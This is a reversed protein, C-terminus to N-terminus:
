TESGFVLFMRTSRLMDRFSQAGSKSFVAVEGAQPREQALFQDFDDWVALRVENWYDLGARRVEKDELSFGLPRILHLGANAALCTRGINGTNWHIEPAVLVVHREPRLNSDSLTIENM